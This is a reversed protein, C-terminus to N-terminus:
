IRRPARGLARHCANRSRRRRCNSEVHNSCKNIGPLLPAGCAEAIRRAEAKNGFARLTAATPGVFTLGADTCAAAFEGSESLFGYGPHVSDCGSELATTIIRKIDLYAPVGSAELPAAADAHKVHLSEADDEAYIAVTEIGQDAATRGIRIAIEGRNAILLKNLM